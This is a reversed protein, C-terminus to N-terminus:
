NSPTVQISMAEYTGGEGGLSILCYHKNRFASGVLLLQQFKNLPLILFDICWANFLEAEDRVVSVCSILDQFHLALYDLM